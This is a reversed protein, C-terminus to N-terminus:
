VYASERVAGEGTDEQLDTLAGYVKRYLMIGTQIDFYREAASRCRAVTERHNGSLLREIEDVARQYGSVTVDKLVTGIKEREVLESTDGVGETVVVPLGCGLYEALKTPSTACRSFAPKYFLLGVHALAIYRQIAEHDVAMIVTKKESVGKSSLRNKVMARDSQTIILLQADRWRRQAALFFDLMEDLAYWSGLSGVYIFVPWGSIGLTDRLFTDPTQPTYKELDACCPIIQTIRPKKAAAIYGNRFAGAIKETLVIIGDARAILTKEVRNLVKFLWSSRKLTGADAYEEAMLGRVDFIFKRRWLRAPLYSMIAPIASRAHVIHIKKEPIYRLLFCFGQIVDFLTALFRPRKHYTFRRWGINYLSLKQQIADVADPTVLHPKEFSLIDFHVGAKSLGKIYPLGQSHLLPETLGYYSIYM